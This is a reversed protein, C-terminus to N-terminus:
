AAVRLPVFSGTFGPGLAVGMLTGSAGGQLVRELVFLITPASMNGADRLVEREEALTGQDLHLVREIATIVKAGGPHCVFRDVEDLTLGCRELAGSVASELNTSVFDPISRDFVVGLGIDDVDWGMIGLTDPWTIQTGTGVEIGSEARRGSLCAAAAGDGFLVTAIIDAKQLRDTRFSPTCAEVVVLLVRDDPRAASLRQAITLGSAGGACGLGFVPVRLVDDRFGMQAAVRSELTPTAIGTSSVTVICDVEPATWGSAALAKGAADMFLATAGDLYVDNRDKWGHDAEFWDIPVVSYRREIGATTFTRSLREFQPYHPGLLAQARTQVLDQPLEHPPLATALGHLFVTM